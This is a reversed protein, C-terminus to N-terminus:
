AGTTDGADVAVSSSRDDAVPEDESGDAAGKPAAISQPQADLQTKVAMGNFAGPVPSVIVRDGSRVDSANPDAVAFEESSYIVSVAKKRLVGDEEVYVENGHRIAVRPIQVGAVKAAGDLEVDVFLGPALPVDHESTSEFPADVVVTAYVLRTEKEVSADVSRLYGPWQQREVGFLASVTAPIRPAEATADATASYGLSLGLEAIQVDTMPIRIEMSRTAFVRGISSGRAMFQGLEAAKNIIRGDFPASIFTRQYNLEAQALEANAADLNARARDVQPKNLTLPNAETVPRGQLEEWQKANTAATGLEVELDVKASAVAAAASKLAVQYDADDIRLLTDGAKFEGGEVFQDSVAIVKGTVQTILEIETKARVEGQFLSSVRQELFKAPVVNVTLTPAQTEEEPPAPKFVGLVVVLAVGAVMVFLPIFSKLKFKM